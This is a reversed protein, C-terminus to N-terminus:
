GGPGPSGSHEGLAPSSMLAYLDTQLSTVSPSPVARALLAAEPLLVNLPDDVRTIISLQIVDFSSYLRGSAAISNSLRRLSRNMGALFRSAEHFERYIDQRVTRPDRGATEPLPIGM